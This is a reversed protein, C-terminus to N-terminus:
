FLKKPKKPWWPIFSNTRRQYDAYEMDGRYKKELMAVGSVKILFFTLLVPSILSIYWYSSGLSLLFVGWWMLSEGFYNPHRTYAWLGTMITKGKNAPNTKFRYKQWDGVAEFYFGVLWIGLGLWHYWAMASATSALCVMIPLAVAWMITGQLMFIQFFARLNFYKWDRRWQAYRYDEGVGRNRIFLYFALRLGWITVLSLLFLQKTGTNGTFWINAYAVVIFGLGWAIDIISNDKKILGLLYWVVMYIFITTGSLFLLQLFM